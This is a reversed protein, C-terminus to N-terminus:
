NLVIKNVEENPMESKFRKQTKLLSKNARIFQKQNKQFVVEVVFDKVHDM